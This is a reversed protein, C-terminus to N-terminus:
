ATSLAQLADPDRLLLDAYKEAFERAAQAELGVKQASREAQDLLTQRLQGGTAQTQIEQPTLTEILSQTALQTAALMLVADPVRGAEFGLAEGLDARVPILRGGQRAVADFFADAAKRFEDLRNPRLASVLDQALTRVFGPLSVQQPLFSLDPRPTFIPAPLKGARELLAVELLNLYDAECGACLDLHRKLDPYLAGAPLGGIEAAVYGPLRSQFAAHSLDPDALGLVARTFHRVAEPASSASLRESLRQLRAAHAQDNAM